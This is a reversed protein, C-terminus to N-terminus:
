DLGLQKLVDKHYKLPFKKLLKAEFAELVKRQQTRQLKAELMMGERAFDARTANVRKKLHLIYFENGVKYPKSVFPNKANLTLLEKRLEPSRMVPHRKMTPTVAFAHLKKTDKLTLRVLERVLKAPPAEQSTSQSTPRSSASLSRLLVAFPPNGMRKWSRLVWPLGQKVLADKFREQAQTAAYLRALEARAAVFPPFASGGKKGTLQIIHLGFRTRVISSIEGVKKLAFAARDFPPVMAGRPFFGLDGGRSGSPGQSHKKALEPFSSPAALASQRILEMRKYTANTTNKDAGPKLMLLIHRARIQREQSARQKMAQYMVRLKADNKVLYDALKKGSLRQQRPLRNADFRLAELELTFYQEQFAKWVEEKSLKSAEAVKRMMNSALIMSGLWARLQADSVKWDKLSREYKEKSFKRGQHFLKTKEILDQVESVKIQLHHQKAELGFIQQRVLFALFNKKIQKRYQPPFRHLRVRDFNWRLFKKDLLCVAGSSIACDSSSSKQGLIDSIVHNIHKQFAPGDAPRLAPKSTATVASAPRSSPNAHVCPVLFLTLLTLLTLRM